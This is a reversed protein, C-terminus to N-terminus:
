VESAKEELTAIEDCFYMLKVIPNHYWANRMSKGYREKQSEEKSLAKDNSHDGRLPYEANTKYEWSDKEHFEKLGYVGMHYKIMLKEIDTLEIYKKIREISLLAHGKPQSKNWKYPKEDGIYAGIKCVDHLLAAITINVPHVEILKQGPANAINLKLYSYSGLLDYVRLSHDALGGPYCGRFKTSAPSEFFGSEMLYGILYIMGKRNTSKLLTVIKEETEKKAM